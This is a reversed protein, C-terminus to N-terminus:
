RCKSFNLATFPQGEAPTLRIGMSSPVILDWMADQKLNLAM